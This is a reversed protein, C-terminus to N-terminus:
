PISEISRGDVRNGLCEEQIDRAEGSATPWALYARGANGCGAPRPLFRFGIASSLGEFGRWETSIIAERICRLLPATPQGERTATSVRQAAGTSSITFNVVISTPRDVDGACDLEIDRQSALHLFFRRSRAAADAVSRNAREVDETREVVIVKRGVFLVLMLAGLVILSRTEAM